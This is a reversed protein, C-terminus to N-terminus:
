YHRCSDRDRSRHRHHHHHPHRDSYKSSSHGSRARKEKHCSRSSHDKRSRKNQGHHHSKSSRRDRSRSRQDQSHDDSSATPSNSWRSRAVDRNGDKLEPSPPDRLKRLIHKVKDKGLAKVERNIAQTIKTADSGNKYLAQLREQFQSNHAESFLAEIQEHRETKITSLLDDFHVLPNSEGGKNSKQDFSYKCDAMATAYAHQHVLDVAATVLGTGVSAGSLDDRMNDAGVVFYKVACNASLIIQQTAKLASGCM